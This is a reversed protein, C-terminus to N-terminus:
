WIIPGIDAKCVQVIGQRSVTGQAPDPHGVSTITLSSPIWDPSGPFQVYVIIKVSGVVGNLLKMRAQYFATVSEEHIAPNQTRWSLYPEDPNRLWEFIIGTKLDIHGICSGDNMDLNVATRVFERDYQIQPLQGDTTNQVLGIMRDATSRLHARVTMHVRRRVWDAGTLYIEASFEQGSDVDGQKIQNMFERYDDEYDFRDFYKWIEPLTRTSAEDAIGLIDSELGPGHQTENGKVDYEFTGVAERDPPTSNPNGAWLQVGFVEGSASLIPVACMAIPERGHGTDVVEVVTDRRDLVKHLAASAAERLYKSGIHRELSSFNRKKKGTAVVTPTLGDSVGLTEVVVWNSWDTSRRPNKIGPLSTVTSTM